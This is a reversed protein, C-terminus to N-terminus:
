RGDQKRESRKEGERKEDEDKKKDREVENEDDNERRIVEGKKWRMRMMKRVKKDRDEKM